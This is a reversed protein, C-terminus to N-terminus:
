RMSSAGLQPVRASFRDACRLSSPECSYSNTLTPGQHAQFKGISNRYGLRDFPGKSPITLVEMKGTGDNVSLTRQDPLLQQSGFDVAIQRLKKVSIRLHLIEALGGIIDAKRQM